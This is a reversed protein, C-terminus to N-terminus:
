ATFPLPTVTAGRGDPLLLATGPAIRDRRVYALAIPRRFRPSVLSTRVEGAPSGDASLAARAAAPATGEIWLGVLKRNVHGRYTVRAIVEQGVYCGKDYSVARDLGAELPLTEEDLEAGFRPRGAEVRLVEAADRGIPVAGAERLARWVEPASSAALWLDLGPLGLERSGIVVAEQGAATVTAQAYEDFEPLEPAISRLLATAGPGHLGLLATGASADTVACDEMVLFRRLHDIAPQARPGDLDLWLADPRAFVRALAVLRGKATVMAAPCGTGPALRKVDATVMGHLWSVRDPGTVAIRGRDSLDLLGAGALAALAGAAPDGYSAVVEHGEDEGLLAGASRHVERLPLM